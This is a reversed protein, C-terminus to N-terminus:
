AATRSLGPTGMGSPIPEDGAPPRDVTAAWLAAAAVTVLTAGLVHLSVLVEPVGLTYQVGGLVGQALVVAVLTRYRRWMRGPAAVAALAFGLGVLLGLYGFVLDAHLQAVQPVGVGL